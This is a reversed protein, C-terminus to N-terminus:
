YTIVFNMEDKLSGGTKEFYECFASKICEDRSGDCERMVMNLADSDTIVLSYSKGDSPEGILDRRAEYRVENLLGDNGMSPQVTILFRKKMRYDQPLALADLEELMEIVRSVVKDNVYGM